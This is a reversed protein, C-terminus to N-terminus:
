VSVELIMEDDRWFQLKGVPVDDRVFVPIGGPSWGAAIPSLWHSSVPPYRRKLEIATAETCRFEERHIKPVLNAVADVLDRYADSM